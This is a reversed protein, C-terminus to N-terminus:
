GRGKEEAPHQYTAEYEDTLLQAYVRHKIASGNMTEYPSHKVYLTALPHLDEPLIAENLQPFKKRINLDYLGAMAGTGSKAMAFCLAAHLHELDRHLDKAYDERAQDTLTNLEEKAMMALGTVDSVRMKIEADAFVKAVAPDPPTKNYMLQMVRSTEAIFQPFRKGLHAFDIEGNENELLRTCEYLPHTYKEIKRIHADDSKIEGGWFIGDEVEGMNVNMLWKPSGTQAIQFNKDRYYKEPTGEEAASYIKWGKKEANRRFAANYHFETEPRNFLPNIRSIDNMQQWNGDKEYILKEITRKWSKKGSEIFDIAPPLTQHTFRSTAQAALLCLSNRTAELDQLLPHQLSSMERFLLPIDDVLRSAPGQKNERPLLEKIKPLEFASVSSIAPQEALKDEHGNRFAEVEEKKERPFLGKIKRSEFECFTLIAPQEALKDEYGNRFAEVEEERAALAEKLGKLRGLDREFAERTALALNPTSTQQLGIEVEQALQRLRNQYNNFKLTQNERARKFNDFPIAYNEASLDREPLQIQGLFADIKKRLTTELGYGVEAHIREVTEEPLATSQGKNRKSIEIDAFKVRDRLDMAAQALGDYIADDVTFDPTQGNLMGYVAQKVRRKADERAEEKGLDLNKKGKNPLDLRMFIAEALMTERASRATVEILENQKQDGYLFYRSLGPFLDDQLKKACAAEDLIESKSAAIAQEHTLYTKALYEYAPIHRDVQTSSQNAHLAPLPLLYKQALIASLTEIDPINTM